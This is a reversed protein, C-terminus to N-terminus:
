MGFSVGDEISEEEEEEEEEEQEVEEEETLAEQPAASGAGEYPGQKQLSWYMISATLTLIM